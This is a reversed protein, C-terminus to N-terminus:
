RAYRRALIDNITEVYVKDGLVLEIESAILEWENPLPIAFVRLKDSDSIETEIVPFRLEVGNEIVRAYPAQAIDPDSMFDFDTPIQGEKLRWTSSDASPSVAVQLYEVPILESTMMMSYDWSTLTRERIRIKEWHYDSYWAPDCYSMLDKYPDKINTDNSYFKGTMINYGQTGLDGNAYPYNEDYSSVSGCPAHRLGQNHGLEHVITERSNGVSRNSRVMILAHRSRVNWTTKGDGAVGGIGSFSMEALDCCTDKDLLAHYYYNPGLDDM